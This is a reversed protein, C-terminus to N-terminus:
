AIKPHIEVSDKNLSTILTLQIRNDDDLRERHKHDRM